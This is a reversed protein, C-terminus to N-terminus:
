VGRIISNVKSDHFCGEDGEFDLNLTMCALTKMNDALRAQEKGSVPSITFASM